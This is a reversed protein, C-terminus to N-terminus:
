RLLAELAADLHSEGREEDGPRRRRPPSRGRRAVYPAADPASAPAPAPAPTPALTPAPPRAPATTARAVSGHAVKSAFPNRPDAHWLRVVECLLQAATARVRRLCEDM